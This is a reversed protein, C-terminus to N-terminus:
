SSKNTSAEQRSQPTNWENLKSQPLIYAEPYKDSLKGINVEKIFDKTPIHGRLVMNPPSGTVLVFHDSDSARTKLRAVLSGKNHRTTKVEVRNGAASTLDFGGSRSRISLDPFVNMAKAVALEGCFGVFEIEFDDDESIKQNKVGDKRSIATREKAVMKALEVELDSLHIKEM